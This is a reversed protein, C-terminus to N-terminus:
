PMYCLHQRTEKWKSQKSSKDASCKTSFPFSFQPVCSQFNHVQVLVLVLVPVTDLNVEVVIYPLRPNTTSFNISLTSSFFLFLRYLDTVVNDDSACNLM